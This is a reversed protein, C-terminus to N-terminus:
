KASPKSSGLKGLFKMGMGKEPEPPPPETKKPLFDPDISSISGSDEDDLPNANSEGIV